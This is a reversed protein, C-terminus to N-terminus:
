YKLLALFKVKFAFSTSILSVVVNDGCDANNLYTPKHQIPMLFVLLLFLSPRTVEFYM